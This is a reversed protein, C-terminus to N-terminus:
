LDLDLRRIPIPDSPSEYATFAERGHNVEGLLRETTDRQQQLRATSDAECTLLENLLQEAEDLIAECDRRVINPLKDRDTRWAQWAITPELLADILQQKHTLLATLAAYDEAAVLEAQEASLEVLARAYARRSRFADLYRDATATMLPM